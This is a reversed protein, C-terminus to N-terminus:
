PNSNPTRTAVQRCFQDLGEEWTPLRLHPSQISILPTYRPRVAPRPFESSAVPIVTTEIGLGAYLRTTLGHWSTEGAGALHWVGWAGTELLQLIADALHPAYTPSGFQDCVVRVERQGNAALRLMTRPFNRKEPPLHHYLWATRVIYHQPHLDAVAREGALKSRGYVSLPNTIDYEHCPRDGSGDFVYDTSVHVLPIKHDAAAIALNRPGVANVRYAALPDAEAGDVDTWAACNIIAEPRHATVVSRVAGLDGIDLDASTLGALEHGTSAGILAQGLQGRVGVILIKM